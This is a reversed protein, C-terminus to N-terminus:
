FNLFFTDMCDLFIISLQLERLQLIAYSTPLMNRKKTEIFSLKLNVCEILTTVDCLLRPKRKRM